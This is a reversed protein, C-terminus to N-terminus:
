AWGLKQDLELPDMGISGSQKHARIYSAHGGPKGCSDLFSQVCIKITVRM